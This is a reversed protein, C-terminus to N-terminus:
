QLQLIKGMVREAFLQDQGRQKGSEFAMPEGFLIEFPEPGFFTETNNVRTPVVLAGTERALFGVGSKPPRPKGTKSRTGEPFLIMCGQDKLVQTARRIAGLDGRGRNLPIAGLHRFLRGFLPVRFLEEKALFRPFRVRYVVVGVLPPDLLSIHNAALIIPGEQPVNELGRVQIGKSWLYTKEVIWHCFSYGWPSDRKV